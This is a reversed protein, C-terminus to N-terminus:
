NLTQYPQTPSLLRAEDIYLLNSRQEIIFTDPLVYIEYGMYGRSFVSQPIDLRILEASLVAVRPDIAHMIIDIYSPSACCLFNGCFYKRPFGTTVHFM